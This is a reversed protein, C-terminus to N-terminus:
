GLIDSQNKSQTKFLKLLLEFAKITEKLLPNSKNTTLYVPSGLKKEGYTKEATKEVILKRQKLQELHHYISSRKMTTKKVLEHIAIPQNDNITTLVKARSLSFNNQKGM